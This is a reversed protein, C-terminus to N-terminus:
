STSGLPFASDGPDRTVCADVTGNVQPGIKENHKPYEVFHPRYRRVEVLLDGYEILPYIM